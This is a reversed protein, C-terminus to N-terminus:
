VNKNLMVLLKTVTGSTSNLRLFRGIYTFRVILAAAATTISSGSTLDTGQVTLWNTATSANGDTQGQIAGADNTTQFTITASPTGVIQVVVRDWGSVDLPLVGTANFQLTYDQFHSTM